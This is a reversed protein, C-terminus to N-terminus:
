AQTKKNSFVKLYKPIYGGNKLISPVNLFQGSSMSGIGKVLGPSQGVFTMTTVPGLGLTSDAVRGMFAQTLASDMFLQPDTSNRLMKAFTDPYIVKYGMDKARQTLVSRLHPYLEFLQEFYKDLKMAGKQNVNTINPIQLIDIGDKYILPEILNAGTNNSITKELGLDLGIDGHRIANPGGAKQMMQRRLNEGLAAALDSDPDHTSLVGSRANYVQIDSPRRRYLTELERLCETTKQRNGSAIAADLERSVIQIRDDIKGLMSEFTKLDHETFYGPFTTGKNISIAYKDAIGPTAAFTYTDVKSPSVFENPGSARLLVVGDNGYGAAKGLERRAIEEGSMGLYTGNGILGDGRSIANEYLIRANPDLGSFYEPRAPFTELLIENDKQALDTITNKLKRGLQQHTRQGVPINSAQLIDGAMDVVGTSLRKEIARDPDLVIPLVTSFMPQLFHENLGTQGISSRNFMDGTAYSAQSIAEGFLTSLGAKIGAQKYFQRTFPNNLGRYITGVGTGLGYLLYPAAVTAVGGLTTM